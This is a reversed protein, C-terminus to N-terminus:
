TAAIASLVLITMLQTATGNNTGTLGAADPIGRVLGGLIIPLLAIAAVYNRDSAIVAVYRRVLTSLQAFRNASKPPPPLKAPPAAAPAAPQRSTSPGASAAPAHAGARRARHNSQAHRYFALEAGASVALYAM